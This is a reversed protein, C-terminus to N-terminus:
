NEEVVIGESEDEPIWVIDGLNLPQLPAAKHHSDFNRKMRDRMRREKKVLSANPLHPKLQQPTIPLTTRLKRGM